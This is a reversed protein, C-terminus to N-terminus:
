SLVKKLFHGEKYGTGERLFWQREGEEWSPVDHHAVQPFRLELTNQCFRLFYVLTFFPLFICVLFFSYQFLPDSMNESFRFLFEVLKWVLQVLKLYVTVFIYLRLRSRFSLLDKLIYSLLLVLPRTVCNRQLCYRASM